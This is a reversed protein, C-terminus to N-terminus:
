RCLGTVSSLKSNSNHKVRIGLVSELLCATPLLCITVADQGCAQARLIRFTFRQSEKDHHFVCGCELVRLLLSFFKLLAEVVTHCLSLCLHSGQWPDPCHHAVQCLQLHCQLVSPPPLYSLPPAPAKPSLSSSSSHDPNKPCRSMEGERRVM